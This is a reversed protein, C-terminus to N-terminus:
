SRRAFREAARRSACGQMDVIKGDRLTLVQFREQRVGDAGMWQSSGIIKDEGVQTFEPQVEIRREGRKEIQFALVERAEDPGHWVPTRKWWLLGHPVGRWESDEAFLSAFPGPDGRNLAEAAARLEDIVTGYDCGAAVRSGHGSRGNFNEVEWAARVVVCGALKDLPDGGFCPDVRIHSEYLDGRYGVGFSDAEEARGGYAHVAVVDLWAGVVAVGECEGAADVACFGGEWRCV